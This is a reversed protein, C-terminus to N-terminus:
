TGHLQQQPVGLQLGRHPIEADLDIVGELDRLLRLDSLKRTGGGRGRLRPPRARVVPTFLDSLSVTGAM